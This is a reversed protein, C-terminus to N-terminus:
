IQKALERQKLNIIKVVSRDFKYSSPLIYYDIYDASLFTDFHIWLAFIDFNQNIHDKLDDPSVETIQFNKQLLSKTNINVM